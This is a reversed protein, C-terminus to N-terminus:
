KQINSSINNIKDVEESTLKWGNAGAYENVQAPNKAGPIPAVGKVILWNL